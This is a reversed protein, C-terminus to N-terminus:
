VIEPHRPGMARFYKGYKLQFEVQHAITEACVNFYGAGREREGSGEQEHFGGVRGGGGGDGSGGGRGGLKDLRGM